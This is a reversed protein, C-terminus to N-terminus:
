KKEKLMQNSQTRIINNKYLSLSLSSLISILAIALISILKSFKSAKEQQKNEQNVQALEKLRESEKFKDYDDIGLRENNLISISENLNLHQKLYSYANNKDLMKEYVSSM